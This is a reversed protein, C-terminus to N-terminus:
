FREPGREAQRKKKHHDKHHPDCLWRVELPKSYDDHHGEAEDGCVECPKKVLRGSRLANDVAWHARRKEENELVWKKKAIGSSIKYADTKQYRKRAVVRDPANARQRDFERYYESKKSRNKNV